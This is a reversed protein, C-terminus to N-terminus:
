FTYLNKREKKSIKKAYKTYTNRMGLFPIGLLIYKHTYKYTYIDVYINKYLIYAQTVNSLKFM